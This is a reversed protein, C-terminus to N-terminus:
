RIGQFRPTSAWCIHYKHDMVTLRNIYYYAVLPPMNTGFYRFIGQGEYHLVCILFITYNQTM